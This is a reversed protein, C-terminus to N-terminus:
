PNSTVIRVLHLNGHGDTVLCQLLGEATSDLQSGGTTLTKRSQTLDVRDLLRHRLEPILQDEVDNASAGSEVM